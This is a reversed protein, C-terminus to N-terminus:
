HMIKVHEDFCQLLKVRDQKGLFCKQAYKQEQPKRQKIKYGIYATAEPPLPDPAGKFPLTVTPDATGSRVPLSTDFSDTENTQWNQAGPTWQDAQM